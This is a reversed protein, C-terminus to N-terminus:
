LRRLRALTELTIIRIGDYAPKQKAAKIFDQIPVITGTIKADQIQNSIIDIEFHLVTNAPKKFYINILSNSEFEIKEVGFLQNCLNSMEIYQYYSKEVKEDRRHNQYVANDAKAKIKDANTQLQRVEQELDEVHWKHEEISDKKETIAKQIKSMDTTQRRLISKAEEITLKSQKSVISDIRMIEEEVQTIQDLISSAEEAHNLLKSRTQEISQALMVIQQGLEDVQQIYYDMEKKFAAEEKEITKDLETIELPPEQLICQLFKEKALFEVYNKSLLHFHDKIDNLEAELAKPHFPLNNRTYVSLGVKKKYEEQCQYLNLQAKNFRDIELPIDKLSLPRTPVQM